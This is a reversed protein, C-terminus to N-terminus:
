GLVCASEKAMGILLRPSLCVVFYTTAGTDYTSEYIVSDAYVFLDRSFRSEMDWLIEMFDMEHDEMERILADIEPYAVDFMSNTGTTYSIMVHECAFPADTSILAERSCLPCQFVEYIISDWDLPGSCDAQFMGDPNVRPHSKLFKKREFESLDQIRWPKTLDM